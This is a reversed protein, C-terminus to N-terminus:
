GPVSRRRNRSSNASDSGPRPAAAVVDLTRPRRLEELAHEDAVAVVRHGLEAAHVDRRTTDLTSM